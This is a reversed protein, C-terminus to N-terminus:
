SAVLDSLEIPGGARRRAAAGGSRRTVSCSRRLARWVGRGAKSYAWAVAFLWGMRNIGHYAGLLLVANWEMAADEVRTLRLLM